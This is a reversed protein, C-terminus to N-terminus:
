KKNKQEKLNKLAAVGSAFLDKSKTQVLDDLNDTENTEVENLKNNAEKLLRDVIVKLQPIDKLMKKVQLNELMNEAIVYEAVLEHDPEKRKLEM